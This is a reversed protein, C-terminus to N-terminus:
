QVLAIDKVQFFPFRRFVISVFREKKYRKQITKYRKQITKYRKETMKCKDEALTLIQVYHLSLIFM